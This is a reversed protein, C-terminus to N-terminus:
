RRANEFSCSPLSLTEQPDEGQDGVAGAVERWQLELRALPEVDEDAVVALALRVQELGDEDDRGQARKARRGQRVEDRETAIRRLEPGADDLV